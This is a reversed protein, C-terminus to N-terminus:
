IEAELLITKNVHLHTTMGDVGVIIKQRIINSVLHEQAPNINGTVWLIGVRELFPFIVQTIAKDISRSFIFNDLSAEFQEMDLDTM